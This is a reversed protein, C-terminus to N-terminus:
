HSMAENVQASTSGNDAQERSEVTPNYEMSPTAFM